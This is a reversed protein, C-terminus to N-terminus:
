RKLNWGVPRRDTNEIIELLVRADDPDQIGYCLVVDGIGPQLGRKFISYPWGSADRVHGGDEDQSGISFGRQYRVGDDKWNFIANPNNTTGGKADKIATM